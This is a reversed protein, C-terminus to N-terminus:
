CFLIEEEDMAVYAFCEEIEEEEVKDGNEGGTTEISSERFM